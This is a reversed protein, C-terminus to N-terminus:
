LASCWVEAHMLSYILIRIDYRDSSSAFTRSFLLVKWYGVNLWETSPITSQDGPRKNLTLHFLDYPDKSQAAFKLLGLLALGMFIGLATFAFSQNMVPIVKLALLLILFIFLLTYLTNRESFVRTSERPSGDDRQRCSEGELALQLKDRFLEHGNMQTRVIYWM